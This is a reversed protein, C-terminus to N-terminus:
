FYIVIKWKNNSYINESIIESKLIDTAANSMNECLIM